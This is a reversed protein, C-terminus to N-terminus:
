AIRATSGVPGISSATWPLNISPGDGDDARHRFPVASIRDGALDARVKGAADRITLPFGM